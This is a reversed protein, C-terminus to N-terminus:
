QADDALTPFLADEIVKFVEAFKQFDEATGNECLWDCLNTKEDRNVEWREPYRKKEGRIKEEKSSYTNIFADKHEIARDLTEKSFLNEIGKQIPHSGQMPVSRRFINDNDDNRESVDCDYLLLVKKDAALNSLLPSNLVKDLNAAGGGDKLEISALLEGKGLLEAARTIYQVDTKGEVFVMPKQAEAIEDRIRKNFQRTEAFAQYAEGFESFEEPSIPQGEPLRYIAFGDDGFVKNMGLVFLPSHTTVVFQVNPFMKVLTPLIEYQHKAHLHLDIEDVVVIGRIDEASSIAIGAMDYDRLISLFINLLSTEGSSMQFVNPVIIGETESVVAVTRDWRDGIDLQGDYLGIIERVIDNAVQFANTADGSYTSQVLSLSLPKGEIHRTILSRHEQLELVGRDYAIEFFWNQNNRLPSHSIVNRNTSNVYHRDDSLRVQFRLNEENLWAPEEFRNHPFYLVCNKSFVEKVQAIQADNDQMNTVLRGFVNDSLSKWLIRFNGQISLSEPMNQYEQKVLQTVLEELFLQSEYDVRVASFENGTKIYSSSWLKFVKGPDVEPTNSYSVDKATVLGNVIHSLLISKGSGNEGVLLVPKPKDDAFPFEIDLIDIPGYNQIQIRKVYM